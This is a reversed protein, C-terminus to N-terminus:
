EKNTGFINNLNGALESDGNAHFSGRDDYEQESEGCEKGEDAKARSSSIKSKKKEAPFYQNLPFFLTSIPELTM